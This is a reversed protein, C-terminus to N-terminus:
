MRRKETEAGYRCLKDLEKAAHLEPLGVSARAGWGYETEQWAGLTESPLHGYTILVRVNSCQSSMAWARLRHRRGAGSPLFSCRTPSLSAWLCAGHHHRHKSLESWEVSPHVKILRKKPFVSHKHTPSWAKWCESLKGFMPFIISESFRTRRESLTECFSFQKWECVFKGPLLHERPYSISLM